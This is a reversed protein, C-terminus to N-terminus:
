AAVPPARPLSAPWFSGIRVTSEPLALTIFAAMEAEASLRVPPLAGDLDGLHLTGGDRREAMAPMRAPERKNAHPTGADKDASHVIRLSQGDRISGAVFGILAILLAAAVYKWRSLADGQAQRITEQTGMPFVAM